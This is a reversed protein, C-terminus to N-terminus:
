LSLRRMTIRVKNPTSRKSLGRQHPQGQVGRVARVNLGSAAVRRSRVM